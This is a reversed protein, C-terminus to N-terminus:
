RVEESGGTEPLVREGIKRLKESLGIVEGALNVLGGYDGIQLRAEAEGQVLLVLLEGFLRWAMGGHEALHNLGKETIRLLRRGGSPAGEVFGAEEVLEEQELESLVTYVLSPSILRARAFISLLRKYIAYGHMPGQSALLALVALRVIWRLSLRPAEQM